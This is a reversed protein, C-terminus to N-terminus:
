RSAVGNAGEDPGVITYSTRLAEIRANLRDEARVSTWDRELRDRLDEFPPLQAPRMSTVRVLHAGYSSRIPGAWAGEPAEAIQDFFGRGFTADVARASSLPHLAPLLTRAGISDPAAGDNLRGLAADAEAAAANEGLYIQEFAIQPAITYQAANDNLFDQLEEDSAVESGTASRLLFQMKQVLRQRVVADGQDLSLAKAESFLVEDTIYADIMARREDDNPPRRWTKEFQDALRAVDRDQIEILQADDRQTLDDPNLVAYLAFLGAGIMLFHTLPDRLVNLVRSM